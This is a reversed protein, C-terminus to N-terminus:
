RSPPTTGAESKAKNLIRESLRGFKEPDVPKILFLDFGALHAAWITSEETSASLLGFLVGSAEATAKLLTYVEFASRGGIWDDLVIFRKGLLQATLHLEAREGTVVREAVQGAGLTAVDDWGAVKMADVLSQLVAPEMDTSLIAAAWTVATTSPTMPAYGEMESALRQRGGHLWRKITGEPRGLRAAIDCVSLRALYFLAVARAEERPLQRLAREIDLRLLSADAAAASEREHLDTGFGGDEAELRLPASARRRLILRAENRTIRYMWQRAREPERLEGVHLCIQLLAAAVADQADEYHRLEAYALAFLPLRAREVLEALAERDGERARRALEAEDPEPDMM